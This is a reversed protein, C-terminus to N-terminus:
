EDAVILPEFIQQSHCRDCYLPDWAIKGNHCKGCFEGKIIASMTIKNAGKEMVFIEEHCAKCKFRMRHSWHPFVVPSLGVEAMIEKHTDLIVDGYESYAVGPLVTSVLILLMLKQNM